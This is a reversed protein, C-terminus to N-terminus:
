SYREGKIPTMDLKDLLRLLNQQEEPLLRQLVQQEYALALPVIDRYLILGKKTLSLQHRRNDVDDQRKQLYDKQRLKKVARSVAVKDMATKSAIEGASLHTKEGLVALIRWEQVSIAFRQSYRDALSQSIRNSLASLRYPLFAQLLLKAESFNSM